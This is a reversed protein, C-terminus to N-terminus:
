SRGRRIGLVFTDLDTAAIKIQNKEFFKSEYPHWDRLVAYDNKTSTQRISRLSRFLSRVNWDSFSYGLFLLDCYGLQTKITNPVLRATTGNKGINDIYDEDSIIVSNHPKEGEAISGHIKYIIAVPKSVDFNFNDPRAKVSPESEELDLQLQELAKPSYGLYQAVAPAFRVRVRDGTKPVTIVCYPVGAESMASEILEDYNTTVALYHRQFKRLESNGPNEVHNKAIEAVLKHTETTQSVTAFAPRLADWLGEEGERYQYYSAVSLLPPATSAVGTISIVATLVAELNPLERPLIQELSRASRALYRYGIERALLAALAGASPAAKSSDEPDPPPHTQELRRAVRAALEMLEISLPSVLKLDRCVDEIHEQEPETLKAPADSPHFPLSAGAGLFPVFRQEAGFLQRALSSYNIFDTADPKQSPDFEVEM